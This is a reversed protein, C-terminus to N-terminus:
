MEKEIIRIARNFNKKRVRWKKAHRALYSVRKDPCLALVAKVYRNYMFMTFILSSSADTISGELEMSAPHEITIPFSNSDMYIEDSETMEFEKIDDVLVSAEGEPDLIYLTGSELKPKTGYGM